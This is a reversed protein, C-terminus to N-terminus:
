RTLEKQLLGIRRPWGSTIAADGPLSSRAARAADLDAFDSWCLSYWMGDPMGLKLLYLQGPQNALALILADLAPANRVSALVLTYHSAPLGLFERAGPLNTEHLTAQTAIPPDAAQEAAAHEPEAKPKEVDAAAISARSNKPQPESIAQESVRASPTTAAVPAPVNPPNSEISSALHADVDASPTAIANDHNAPATPAATEAPTSVSASAAPLASPSQMLYNPLKSPPPTSSLAPPAPASVPAAPVPAAPQQKVVPASTDSSDRCEFTQGDASPTCVKDHGPEFAQSAMALLLLSASAFVRTLM